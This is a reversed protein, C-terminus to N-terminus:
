GPRSAPRTVSVFGDFAGTVALHRGTARWWDVVVGTNLRAAKVKGIGPLLPKATITGAGPIHLHCAEMLFTRLSQALIAMREPDSEDALARGLVLVISSKTLPPTVRGHRGLARAANARERPSRSFQLVYCLLPVYRGDTVRGAEILGLVLERAQSSKGALYAQTVVEETSQAVDEALDRAREHAKTYQERHMQLAIEDVERVVQRTHLQCGSTGLAVLSLMAIRLVPKHHAM